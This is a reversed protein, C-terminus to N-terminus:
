NNLSTMAKTLNAEREKRKYGCAILFRYMDFRPNELRLVRAFQEAVVELSVTDEGGNNFDENLDSIVKAILEFDKRTM